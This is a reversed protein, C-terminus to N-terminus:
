DPDVVRTLDRRPGFINVTYLIFYFPNVVPLTVTAKVSGAYSYKLFFQSM